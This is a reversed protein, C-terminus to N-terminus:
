PRRAVYLAVFCMESDPIGDLRVGFVKIRDLVLLALGVLFDELVIAFSLHFHFHKLQPILQFIFPSDSASSTADAQGKVLMWATDVFILYVVLAIGETFLQLRLPCPRTSSRIRLVELTMLYM